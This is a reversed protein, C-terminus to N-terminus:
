WKLKELQRKPSLYGALLFKISSRLMQVPSLYCAQGPSCSSHSLVLVVPLLVAVIPLFIELGATDSPQVAAVWLIPDSLAPHGTQTQLSCSPCLHPTSNCGLSGKWDGSTGLSCQESQSCASGRQFILVTHQPYSPALLLPIDEGRQTQHSALTIMDEQGQWTSNVDADPEHHLHPLLLCLCAPCLCSVGPYQWSELYGPAQPWAPSPCRCPSSCLVMIYHPYSLRLSSHAKIVFYKRQVRSNREEKKYLQKM